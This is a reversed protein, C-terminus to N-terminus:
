RNQMLQAVVERSFSEFSFRRSAALGRQRMHDRRCPDGALQETFTRCEELAHWLYGTSGHDVIEPQGGRGIVIPICGSSMAEVSTIGFHEMREPYTDEDDNYGCYHWYIESRGLLQVLEERSPNEYVVIPCGESQRRVELLYEADQSFGALHLSWGEMHLRRMKRFVGIMEIQRKSRAGGSFRGVSVIYRDKRESHNLVVPPYLVSANMRWYQRVWKASFESCCLAGRYTRLRIRDDWALRKQLPFECLIYSRLFPTMRPIYNTHHIALDYKMADTAAIGIESLGPVWRKRTERIIAIKDDVFPYLQRLQDVDMDIPFVCHVTHGDLRLASAVGLVYALGGGAHMSDIKSYVCINM